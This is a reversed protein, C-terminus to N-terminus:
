IPNAMRQFATHLWLKASQTQFWITASFHLFMTRTVFDKRCLSLKAPGTLNSSVIPKGVGTKL